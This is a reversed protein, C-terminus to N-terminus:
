QRLSQCAAKTKKTGAEVQQKGQYLQTGVMRAHVGKGTKPRCPVFVCIQRPVPHPSANCRLAPYAGVLLLRAKM